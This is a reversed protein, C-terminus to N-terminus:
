SGEINPLWYTRGGGGTWLREHMYLRAFLSGGGGTWRYLPPTAGRTDKTHRWATLAPEGQHPFRWGSVPERDARM